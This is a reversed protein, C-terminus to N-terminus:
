KQNLKYAFALGQLALTPIIEQFLHENEFLRSFGGTGLVVPNEDTFAEEIIRATLERVM